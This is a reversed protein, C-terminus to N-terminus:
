QMKVCKRKYKVDKEGNCNEYSVIKRSSWRSGNINNDHVITYLM